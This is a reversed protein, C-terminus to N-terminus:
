NIPKKYNKKSKVGVFLELGKWYPCGFGTKNISCGSKVSKHKKREQIDGLKQFGIPNYFEIPKGGISQPM